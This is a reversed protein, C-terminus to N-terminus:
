EEEKATEIGREIAYKIDRETLNSNLMLSTALEALGLMISNKSGKVNVTCGEGKKDSEIFIKFDPKFDSKKKVIEKLEDLLEELSKGEHEKKFKEYDERWGNDDLTKEMKELLEDLVKEKM